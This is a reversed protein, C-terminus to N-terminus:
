DRTLFTFPNVSAPIFGAQGQQDSSWARPHQAVDGHSPFGV